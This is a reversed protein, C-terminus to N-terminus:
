MVGWLNLAFLLLLLLPTQALFGFGQTTTVKKLYYYPIWLYKDGSSFLVISLSPSCSEAWMHASGSVSGVGGMHEVKTARLQM